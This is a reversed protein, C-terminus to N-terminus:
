SGCAAIRFDSGVSIRAAYRDALPACVQHACDNPVAPLTRAPSLGDSHVRVLARYRPCHTCRPIRGLAFLRLGDVDHVRHSRPKQEM